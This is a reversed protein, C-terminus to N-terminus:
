PYKEEANSVLMWQPLPTPAPKPGYLWDDLHIALRRFLWSRKVGWRVFNHMGNRLHSYPCVRMCRGCDTGVTCWYTFCAESNIQWRSVGNIIARDGFPIAKSPCAEACKRCHTCFDIVTPDRQRKSTILPLDTTVVALRVRPGLEPTILLGMRGIEGLGADRAVLPCVVQYNGDIHARAEYGLQHIWEAIQIAISGVELYQQASEMAAPSAPAHDLTTKDMEVTLAIASPHDLTIPAGYPENRGFHSYVHYSQLHTIGVSVAGLKKAWQLVFETMRPPDVPIPPSMPANDLISHFAAVSNFSAQTAAYVLPQYFPSEPSLLGPKTRFQDDLLKKETQAQYYVEFRESGPQLRARAFMIDREDIQGHPTDDEDYAPGRWPVILVSSGLVGIIVMLSILLEQGPFNWLGSALWPLGFVLTVVVLKRAAIKEGEQQSSSAAISGVAIVNIGIMICLLDFITSLNNM